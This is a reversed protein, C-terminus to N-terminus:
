MSLFLIVNNDNCLVFFNFYIFLYIFLKMKTQPFESGIVPM